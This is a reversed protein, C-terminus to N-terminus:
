EIGQEGLAALETERWVRADHVYVPVAAAFEGLAYEELAVGAEGGAFSFDEGGEGVVAVGVHVRLSGPCCWLGICTRVGRVVSDWPELYPCIDRFVGWGKAPSHRWAGYVPLGGQLYPYFVSFIGWGRHLLQHLLQDLVRDSVLVQDLVQDLVASAALRAAWPASRWCRCGVASM